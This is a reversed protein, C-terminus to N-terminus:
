KWTRRLKDIIIEELQRARERTINLLDAVRALSTGNEDRAIDKACSENPAMEWPQLDPFNFRISGTADNVDLYLNWQCGIYCCPREVKECDARVKPRWYPETAEPCAKRAEHREKPDERKPNFVAAKFVRKRKLDMRVDDREDEDDDVLPLRRRVASPEEQPVESQEEERAKEGM